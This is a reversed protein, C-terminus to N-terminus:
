QSDVVKVSSRKLTYGTGYLEDDIKRVAEQPTLAQVQGKSWDDRDRGLYCTYEYTKM